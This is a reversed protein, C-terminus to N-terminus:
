LEQVAAITQNYFQLKQNAREQVSDNSTEAKETSKNSEYTQCGVARNAVLVPMPSNYASDTSSGLKLIPQETIHKSNEVQMRPSEQAEYSSSSNFAFKIKIYKYHKPSPEQVCKFKSYFNDKMDVRVSQSTWYKSSLSATKTASNENSVEEIPEVGYENILKNIAIKEIHNAKSLVKGWNNWM